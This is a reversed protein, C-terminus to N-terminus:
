CQVVVVAGATELEKNSFFFLIRMLHSKFTNNMM